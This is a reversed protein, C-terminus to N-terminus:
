SDPSRFEPVQTIPCQSFLTAKNPYARKEAATFYRAESVDGVVIRSVYIHASISTRITFAVIHFHTSNYPIIHM